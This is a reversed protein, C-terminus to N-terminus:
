KLFFDEDRSWSIFSRMSFDKLIFLIHIKSIYSNMESVRYKSKGGVIMSAFMRQQPEGSTFGLLCALDEHFGLSYSAISRLAVQLSPVSSNLLRPVSM